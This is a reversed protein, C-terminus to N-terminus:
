SRESRATWIEILAVFVWFEFSLDNKFYPEDVAGHIMIYVFSALLGAGLLIDRSSLNRILLIFLKSILLLFAILGLIGCEAWFTLLINHPYQFAEKYQSPKYADAYLTKFGNLGAGFVPHDHLM